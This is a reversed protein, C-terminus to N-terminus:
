GRMSRPRNRFWAWRGAIQLGMALDPTAPMDVLVVRIDRHEIEGGAERAEDYRGAEIARQLREFLARAQGFAPGPEFLCINWPFDSEDEDDWLRGLVEEGCVLLFDPSRDLPLPKDLQRLRAGPGGWVHRLLDDADVNAYFATHM